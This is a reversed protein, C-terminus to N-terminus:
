RWRAVLRPKEAEFAQGIDDLIAPTESPRAAQAELLFAAVRGLYLPTMARLLHDRALRRAHHAVAFDSVVRAWVRPPFRFETPALLGLPYLEALTEEPVIQEWVPLLDKLGLRFARVMQEVGSLSVGPLLAPAEGIRTVPQSGHIEAWVPQHREATRFLAGVVRVLITAVDPPVPGPDMVKRGLHTEVLRSGTALAETALWIEAGPELEPRVGPGADLCRHVLPGSLGACGGLLEQVRKGYLARTLPALLNTTLTGEVATRTYAPSVYDAQDRLVPQLLRDIWEPRLSTLAADVLCVARADLRQAAGLLALTARGDPRPTALELRQVAPGPGATELWTRTAAPSDDHSGADVVLLVCKAGAFHAALGARVADLVPAVNRAQNFVHVGAAIEASGAAGVAAASEATLLTDLRGADAV